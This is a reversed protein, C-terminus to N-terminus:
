RSFKVNGNKIEVLLWELKKSGNSAGKKAVEIVDQETFFDGTQENKILHNITLEGHEISAMVSLVLEEYAMPIKLVDAATQYFLFEKQLGDEIDLFFTTNQNAIYFDLPNPKLTFRNYADWSYTNQLNEILKLDRDMQESTPLESDNKTCDQVVIISLLFAYVRKMM